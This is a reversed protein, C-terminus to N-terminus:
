EDTEEQIKYNKTFYQVKETSNQLNEDISNLCTYNLLIWLMKKFGLICLETSM